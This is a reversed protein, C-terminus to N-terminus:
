KFRLGGSRGDAMRTIMRANHELLIQACKFSGSFATIHLPTRGTFDTSNPNVGSDLLMQLQESNDANAAIFLEDMEVTIYAGNSWDDDEIPHFSGIM